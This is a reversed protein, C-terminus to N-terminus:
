QVVRLRYFGAKKAPDTTHTWQNTSLPGALTTWANTLSPRWEVDCGSTAGTWSLTAAGNRMEIGTLEVATNIRFPVDNDQQAFTNSGFAIALNGGSYLDTGTQYRSYWTYEEPYGGGDVVLGYKVGGTLAVPTMTVNKWTILFANFQPDNSALTGVSIPDGTPQLGNPRVEVLNYIKITLPASATANVRHVTVDVSGLTGSATPTFTQMFRYNAYFPEQYVNASSNFFDFQAIIEGCASSAALSCVACVLFLNKAYVDKRLLM